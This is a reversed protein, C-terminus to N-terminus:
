FIALIVKSKIKNYILVNYILVNKGRQVKKRRTKNEQLSYITQFTHTTTEVKFNINYYNHTFILNNTTILNLYLLPTNLPFLPAPPPTDNLPTESM